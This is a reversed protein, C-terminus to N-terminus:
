GSIRIILYLLGASGAPRASAGRFAGGEGEHGVALGGEGAQDVGRVEHQEVPRHPGLEVGAPHEDILAVVLEAEPSGLQDPRDMRRVRGRAGLRELSVGEAGVAELEGVVPELRLDLRDVPAAGLQGALRGVPRTAAARHEHGARDPREAHPDLGVTRGRALLCPRREGLLDGRQALAAGVAHDELREAVQDLDLLGDAGGAVHVRRHRHDRLHHDAPTARASSAHPASTIPSFQETPGCAIRSATSCIAAAPVRRLSEAIGLAPM